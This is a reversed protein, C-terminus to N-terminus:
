PAATESYDAQKKQLEWDLSKKESLLENLVNQEASTHVNLQRIQNMIKDRKKALAKKHIRSASEEIMQATFDQYEGSTISQTIMQQISKNEFQALIENESTYGKRFCDELVIFVDRAVADEFDNASVSSRLKEFFDFKEIVSLVTRLEANLRIKGNPLAGQTARMKVPVRHTYDHKVADPHLDLAQCLMDLSSSKQIDSKLADVYLFFDMAARAKGEPVDVPYKKKLESLFYDSDIIACKVMKTLNEVGAEQQMVEAPDKGGTIEIVKVTLGSSRCLLITKETAKRGAEDSDFSTYVTDAFRSLFRVHEQTLATGLPALANSFGCQHYALVDMYGECIIVSKTKRIENKAFNFGYLTEGKKFQPLDSSNLYKPGEGGLLRGGFAVIQGQKDFIPFMLRDSFFAIDPYKKSFLGSEGLFEPSYHKSLLFKKLWFRDASAYGICFREITELTIGRSLIYDLAAKGSEHSVLFYHYTSAIRTYLALCDNQNATNEQEADPLFGHEYVVEVGCKKALLRVTDAFSIKEMEQVFGIVGGGAGCGFCHYLNRDPNVEFSPTKENHFPCCGWYRGSRKEISTYEGAIALIDARESVESITKASIRGGSAM